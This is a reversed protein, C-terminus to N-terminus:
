LIQINQVFRFEKFIKNKQFNSKKFVPKVIIPFNQLKSGSGLSNFKSASPCFLCVDWSSSSSISADRLRGHLLCFSFSSPLHETCLLGKNRLKGIVLCLKGILNYLYSRYLLTVIFIAIFGLNIALPVNILYTSGNSIGPHKKAMKKQDVACSTMKFFYLLYPRVKLISYNSKSVIVPANQDVNGTGFPHKM